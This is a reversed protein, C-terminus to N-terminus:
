TTKNKYEKCDLKRSRDPFYHLFISIITADNVIRLNNQLLVLLFM